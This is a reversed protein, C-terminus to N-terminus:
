PGDACSIGDIGDLCAVDASRDAFAAKFADARLQCDYDVKASSSSGAVQAVNPCGTNLQALATDGVQMRITQNAPNPRAPQVVVRFTDSDTSGWQTTVTFPTNVTGTWSGAQVTARWANSSGPATTLTPRNAGRAANAFASSFNSSLSCIFGSPCASSPI